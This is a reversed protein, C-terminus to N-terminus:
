EFDQRLLSLIKLDHFKEKWAGKQRLTGEYIFGLKQLLTFSADNEIMVEAEIRNLAAIHNFMWDCMLNVSRSAFGQRWFDPHIEYSIKASRTKHQYKYGCSGILQNSKNCRILWRHGQGKHRTKEDDLILELAQKPESFPALDYYRCVQQNSFLNFVDDRHSETQQILTVRESKIEPYVDISLHILDQGCKKYRKQEQLGLNRIIKYSASNDIDVEGIIYSVGLQNKAYELVAKSAESGLGRGWYEPLMRYGIDPAQLEPEFKLGCIGIVKMTEKEVLAFRAYGYKDYEKLWIDTIIQEAGLLTQVCGADGTYRTVAQNTSFTYVANIDALTFRRMILRDTEIVTNM